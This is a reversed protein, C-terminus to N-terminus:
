LWRGSQKSEESNEDHGTGNRRMDQGGKKDYRQKRRMDERGGHGEERETDEVRKADLCRREIGVVDGSVRSVVPLPQCVGLFM